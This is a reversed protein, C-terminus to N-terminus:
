PSISTAALTLDNLQYTPLGSRYFNKIENKFLNPPFHSIFPIDLTTSKSSKRSALLRRGSLFRMWEVMLTVLSKESKSMEPHVWFFDM